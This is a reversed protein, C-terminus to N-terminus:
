NPYERQSLLRHRSQHSLFLRCHRHRCLFCFSLLPLQMHHHCQVRRKVSVADLSKSRVRVKKLLKPAIAAKAVVKSCDAENEGFLLLFYAYRLASPTAITQILTLWFLTVSWLNANRLAKGLIIAQQYMAFSAHQFTWIFIRIYQNRMSHVQRAWSRSLKGSRARCLRSVDQKVLVERHVSIVNKMKAVALLPTAELPASEMGLNAPAGRCVSNELLVCAVRLPRGWVKWLFVVRRAFEVESNVIAGESVFIGRLALCAFSFDAANMSPNFTGAPCEVCHPGVTYTGPGCAINFTSSGSFSRSYGDFSILFRQGMANSANKGLRLTLHSSSLMECAVFSSLAAHEKGYSANCSTKFFRFPRERSLLFVELFCWPSLCEIASFLSKLLASFLLAQPLLPITQLLSL